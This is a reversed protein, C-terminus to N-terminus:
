SLMREPDESRLWHESYQINYWVAALVQARICDLQRRLLDRIRKTVERRGRAVRGPDLEVM